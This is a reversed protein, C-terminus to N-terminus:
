IEWRRIRFRLLHLEFSFRLFWFDRYSCFPPLIHYLLHLICWLCKPITSSSFCLVICGICCDLLGLLRCSFFPFCFL